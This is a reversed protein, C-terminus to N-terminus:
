KNRVIGLSWGTLRVIQRLSAGNQKLAAIACKRTDTSLGQLTAPEDTGCLTKLLKKADSDSYRHTDSIDMCTTEVPKAHLKKLVKISRAHDYDLMTLVQATDCFTDAGLYGSYSSWRYDTPHSCLKAQVPNQHIYRLVSLFYADDDVPESRFRDQFLHGSRIYKYNYWSVYRVGIRKFIQELSEANPMTQLLLHIHNSMLCYAYLHFGSIAKCDCLIQLFKERDEDTEFINQQNVGRLMIHYNGSESKQRPGRPMFDGWECWLM